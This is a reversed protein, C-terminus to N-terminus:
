HFLPVSTAKASGPRPPRPAMSYHLQQGRWGGKGDMTPTPGPHRRPAARLMQVSRPNQKMSVPDMHLLMGSPVRSGYSIGKKSRRDALIKQVSEEMVTAAARKQLLDSKGSGGIRDPFKSARDNNAMSSYHQIDTPENEKSKGGPLRGDHALVSSLSNPLVNEFNALCKQSPLEPAPEVDRVKRLQRRKERPAASANNEPLAPAYDSRIRAPWVGLQLCALECIPDHLM